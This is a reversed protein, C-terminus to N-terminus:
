KLYKTKIYALQQTIDIGGSYRTIFDFSEKYEYVKWGGNKAATIAASLNDNRLILFIPIYNMNQLMQGYQKFKKLTGSDGSGIRYKTDIAINGIFYDVPSDVGFEDVLPERFDPNIKLIEKTILQWISGLERNWYQMNEQKQKFTIEFLDMLIDTDQNIRTFTKEEFSEQYKTIIQLINKEQTENLKM